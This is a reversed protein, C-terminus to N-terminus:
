AQEEQQMRLLQIIEAEEDNERLKENPFVTQLIENAEIESSIAHLSYLGKIIQLMRRRTSPEELLEGNMMRSLITKHLGSADALAKYSPIKKEERYRSIQEGFLHLVSDGEGYSGTPEM